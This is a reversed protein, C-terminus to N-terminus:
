EFPETRFAATAMILRNGNALNALAPNGFAVFVPLELAARVLVIQNASSRQYGFGSVDVAGDRIPMNLDAQNFSSLVRVDLHLNAQCESVGVMVIPGGDCISDRLSTLRAADSIGASQSRGTLVLRAGEDVNTELVQQAWFILATQIIAFALALFIPAVMALEIATVGGTDRAFAGAGWRRGRCDPLCSADERSNGRLSPM